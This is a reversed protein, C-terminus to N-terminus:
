DPLLGDFPLPPPGSAIPLRRDELLSIYTVYNVEENVQDFPGLMVVPNHLSASAQVIVNTGLAVSTMDITFAGFGDTIGTGLLLNDSTRRVTVTAGSLANSTFSSFVVGFIKQPTPGATTTTTPGLTTTTTPALTTTTTPALTTTTTPALTTTTTGGVTTTTTGGLTTTTTGGATTTTTGGATTTTTGALTTTTTEGPTTTTTTTPVTTTTTGAATTTTTGPLTTTTTPPPPVAEVARTLLAAGQIRTLLALPFLHGDNGHVVGKEIAFAFEDRLVLAIDGADAFPALIASIEAPTYETALDVDFEGALFRAVIAVGQQRNITSGPRFTGDPFGEVLHAAKGGEIEGYYMHGLPVDSFSPTAPNAMALDFADLGMKTFHQRLMPDYPGWTTPSYGESIRSVQAETLGYDDLIDSTLDSWSALASGAFVLLVMLLGVFIM